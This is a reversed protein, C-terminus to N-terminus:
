RLEARSVLMQGTRTDVHLFSHDRGLQALCYRARYTDAGNLGGLRKLDDDDNTGFMILHQCQSFAEHPVYVPRQACVILGSVNTRGMRLHQILKRKLGLDVIHPAEEIVVHWGGVSFSEDLVQAFVARQKAEDVTGRYTPWVLVRPHEKWHPLKGVQQRFYGRTVAALEPDRPKTGLAVVYRRTANVLTFALTTKGTGSPGIVTLHDASKATVKYRAAFHPLWKSWPVVPVPEPPRRPM